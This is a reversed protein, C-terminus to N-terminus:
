TRAQDLGMALELVKLSFEHACVNFRFLGTDIMERQGGVPLVEMGKVGFRLVM